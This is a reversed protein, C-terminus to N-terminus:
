VRNWPVAETNRHPLCVACPGGNDYATIVSVDYYFILVDFLYECERM